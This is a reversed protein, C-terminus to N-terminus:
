LAVVLAGSMLARVGLASLLLESNGVQLHTSLQQWLLPCRASAGEGADSAMMRVLAETEAWPRGGAELITPLLSAGAGSYRVRKASAAQEAVM